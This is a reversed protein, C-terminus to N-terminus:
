VAWDDMRASPGGWGRQIRDEMRDENSTIGSTLWSMWWSPQEEEKLTGKRKKKKKFKGTKSQHAEPLEAFSIRKPTSRGSSSPTPAKLVSQRPPSPPRTSSSHTGKTFLRSISATATSTSAEPPSAPSIPFRKTLPVVPPPPPQPLDDLIKRLSKVTMKAPCGDSSSSSPSPSCEEITPIPKPTQSRSRITIPSCKSRSIDPTKAGRETSSSSSRKSLFSSRRSSLTSTSTSPGALSSLINYARTSSPPPPPPVASLTSHASAASRLGLTSPLTITDLDGNSAVYQTMARPPPAVLRARGVPELRLQPAVTSAAAERLDLSPRRRNHRHMEGSAPLSMSISGESRMSEGSNRKSSSGEEFLRDVDRSIEELDDQWVEHVDRLRSSFGRSPGQDLQSDSSSFHSHTSLSSQQLLANSMELAHVSRELLSDLFSDTTPPSTSPKRRHFRRTRRPSPSPRSPTQPSYVLTSDDDTDEDAEEASDPYDPPLDSPSSFDPRQWPSPANYEPLTATTDSSLRLASIRKRHTRRPPATTYSLMRFFFIPLTIYPVICLDRRELATRM